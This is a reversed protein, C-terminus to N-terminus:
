MTFTVSYCSLSGLTVTFAPYRTVAAPKTESARDEAAEYMFIANKTGTGRGLQKVVNRMFHADLHMRMHNSM